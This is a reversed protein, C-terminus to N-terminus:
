VTVEELLEEALELLPRLASREVRIVTTGDERDAIHRWAALTAHAESIEDDTM